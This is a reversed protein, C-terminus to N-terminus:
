RTPGADQNADRLVVFGKDALDRLFMETDHQCIVDDVSFERVLRDVLSSLTQPEQLLTWIRAGIDDFDLYTWNRSNLLIIEGAVEAGIVDPDRAFVTEGFGADAV